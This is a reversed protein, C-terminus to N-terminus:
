ECECACTCTHSSRTTITSNTIHVCFWIRYFLLLFQRTAFVLPIPDFHCTNQCSVRHNRFAHRNWRFERLGNGNPWMMSWHSETSEAVIWPAYAACNNICLKIRNFNLLHDMCISASSSEHISHSVSHFTMCRDCKIQFRIFHNWTINWM